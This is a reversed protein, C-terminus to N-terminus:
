RFGSIMLAKPLCSFTLTRTVVNLESSSANVLSEVPRRFNSTM